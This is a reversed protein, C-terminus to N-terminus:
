FIKLIMVCIQCWKRCVAWFFLKLIMAYFGFHKARLAHKPREFEFQFATSMLAFTFHLNWAHMQNAFHDNVIAYHFRNNNCKLGHFVFDIILADCCVALHIVITFSGQRRWDTRCDMKSSSFQTFIIIVTVTAVAAFVM